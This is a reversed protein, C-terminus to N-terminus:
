SRSRRSVRNRFKIVRVRGDDVRNRRYIESIPRTGRKEMALKVFRSNWRYIRNCELQTSKVILGFGVDIPKIGFHM